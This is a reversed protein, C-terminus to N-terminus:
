IKKLLLKYMQVQRLLTLKLWGQKIYKRASTHLKSNIAKIKIGKKKAIRIFLLDEGYQADEPFGKLEEYIEKHMFFGQDGYPLGFVRSRINAGIANVKSLGRESFALDFYYLCRTENKKTEATILKEIEKINNENLSTDVHLFWLFENNAKKAGENLSSARSHEQSFIVEADTNSLFTKVEQTKDHDSEAVPVIVSVNNLM